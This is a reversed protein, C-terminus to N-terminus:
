DGPCPLKVCGAPWQSEMNAASDRDPDSRKAQPLYPYEAHYGPMLGVWALPTFVPKQVTVPPKALSMETGYKHGIVALQLLHPLGKKDIRGARALSFLAFLVEATRLAPRFEVLAELEDAGGNWWVHPTGPPVLGEEGAGLLREDRDVKLRITGSQVM